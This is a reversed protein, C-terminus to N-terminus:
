WVYQDHCGASLWDMSWRPIHKINNAQAVKPHWNHFPFSNKQWGVSRATFWPESFNHTRPFNSLKKLRENEWRYLLSLIDVQQASTFSLYFMQLTGLVTSPTDTTAAPNPHSDRLSKTRGAKTGQGWNLLHKQLAPATKYGEKEGGGPARACHRTNWLHRIVIQCNFPM